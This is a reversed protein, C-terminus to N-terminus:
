LDLVAERGGDPSAVPSVRSLFAHTSSGSRQVFSVPSEAAEAEAEVAEMADPSRAVAEALRVRVGQQAFRITSSSTKEAVTTKVIEIAATLASLEDQRAQTRQDWTKAKDSCLEALQMLYQQDDLLIAATTTLEESNEAIEEIKRAKTKKAEDLEANKAKTIDTEKQILADFEAVSKVEEADTDAKTDRFSRELKELMEIIDGSHFKYDEM